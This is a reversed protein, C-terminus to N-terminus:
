LFLRGNFWEKDISASYKEYFRIADENWHLVQWKILVVDKEKAIEILKDFLLTGIKLNRFESKVVFDDLYLMKGKWTSYSDYYLILGVIQNNVTAVHAEFLNAEFDKKYIEPTTIVSEPEKEFVALEYVIEWVEQMDNVDVKRIIVEMM